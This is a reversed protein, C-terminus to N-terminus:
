RKRALYRMADKQKVAVELEIVRDKINLAQTEMKRVKQKLQRPNMSADQDNPLPTICPMYGASVQTLGALVQSPGPPSQM